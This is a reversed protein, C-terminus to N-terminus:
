EDSGTHAKKEGLFSVTGYTQTVLRSAQVDHPSRELGINIVNDFYAFDAYEPEPLEPDDNLM